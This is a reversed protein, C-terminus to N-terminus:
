DIGQSIVLHFIGYLFQITSFNNWTIFLYAQLEVNICHFCLDFPCKPHDWCPISVLYLFNHFAIFSEASLRLSIHALFLFHLWLSIYIYIYEMDIFELTNTYLIRSMKICWTSSLMNGKFNHYLVVRPNYFCLAM